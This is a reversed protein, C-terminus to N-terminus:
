RPRSMASRPASGSRSPSRSPASSCRPPSPRPGCRVPWRIPWASPSRGPCRSGASGPARPATAAVQAATAKSGDFQVGLDAGKQADFAHEFPAQSAVLLGAALVCATVAMLTTLTMVATQLKRRGVGSRVVRGLASM